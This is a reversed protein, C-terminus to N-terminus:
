SLPTEAGDAGEPAGATARYRRLSPVSAAIAVALVASLAGGAFLSFWGSTADAVLGARIDGLKPGGAGVLYDLGNVRGRFEDPTAAQIMTARSVVSAVDAAGAVALLALVAPLWPSLGALAIAGGWVASAAVMVIGQRRARTIRGSLFGALVGGLGLAPTLLGLTAPSGGFRESNLVPFLAVPMALVTANLDALLLAAIIPTRAAFRIGAGIQAIAGRSDQHGSGTGLRPLGFVGYLAGLFSLANFVLAGDPGWWTLAIGGVLPGLLMNLQGTTHNVAMAAARREGGLLAAIFTQTVPQSVSVLASQVAILPYLWVV